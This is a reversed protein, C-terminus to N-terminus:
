LMVMGAGVTMAVVVYLGVAMEGVTFAQKMPMPVAFNSSSAAAAGGGTATAAISNAVSASALSSQCSADTSSAKTVQAKGDFDCADKASNQNKYYADLVYGLQEKAGCMSYAGYVGTTANRNIGACAKNDSGCIFGFIDGFDEAELDDAPVCTLTKYMCGCLNEDPTPPLVEGKVAWNKSIDPCAQPSNTPTYAAMSTSSPTAAAVRTKLADYNELTSASSGSVEVLGPLFNTTPVYRYLLFTVFGVM